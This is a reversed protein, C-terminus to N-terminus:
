VSQEYGAIGIMGKMDRHDRLIFHRWKQNWKWDDFRKVTTSCMSCLLVDDLKRSLLAEVVVYIDVVLVCVNLLIIVVISIIDGYTVRSRDDCSFTLVSVADVILIFLTLSALKEKNCEKNFLTLHLEEM